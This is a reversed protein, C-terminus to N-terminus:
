KHFVTLELKDNVVLINWMFLRRLTIKLANFKTNKIATQIM